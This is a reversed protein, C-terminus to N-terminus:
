LIVNIKIQRKTMTCEYDRILRQRKNFDLERSLSPLIELVNYHKITYSHIIENQQYESSLDQLVQLLEEPSASKIREVMHATEKNLYFIVGLYIVLSFFYLILSVTFFISSLEAVIFPILYLTLSGVLVTNWLWSKKVLRVYINEFHNQHSMFVIVSLTSLFLFMTNLTFIFAFMGVILGVLMSLLYALLAKKLNFALRLLYAAVFPRFVQDILYGQAELDHDVMTQIVLTIAIPYVVMMVMNGYFTRQKTKILRTFSTKLDKGNLNALILYFALLEIARQVLM